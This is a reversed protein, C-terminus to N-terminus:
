TLVGLSIVTDTPAASTLAACGRNVSIPNRGLSLLLCWRAAARRQKAGYTAFLLGMTGALDPIATFDIVDPMLQVRTASVGAALVAIM